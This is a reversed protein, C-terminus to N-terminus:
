KYDEAFPLELEDRYIQYMLQPVMEPDIGSARIVDGMLKIFEGEQDEYGWLNPISLRKSKM